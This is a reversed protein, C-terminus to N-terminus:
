LRAKRHPPDERGAEKSAGPAGALAEGLLRREERAELHAICLASGRAKPAHGSAKACREMIRLKPLLTAPDALPLIMRAIEERANEAAILLADEMSQAQCSGRLLIAACPAHNARAAAVLARGNHTTARENLLLEVCASRGKSAAEVLARWRGGGPQYRSLLLRACAENGLASALILAEDGSRGPNAGSDLALAALDARGLRIAEMLRHSSPPPRQKQKKVSMPNAKAKRPM